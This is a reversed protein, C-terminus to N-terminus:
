GKVMDALARDIADIMECELYNKGRQKNRDFLYLFLEIAKIIESDFHKKTGLLYSSLDKLFHEMIVFAHKRDRLPMCFRELRSFDLHKTADEFLLEGKGNHVYFRTKSPVIEYFSGLTNIPLEIRKQNANYPVAMIENGFRDLLKLTYSANIPLTIIRTGTTPYNTFSQTPEQITTTSKQAPKEPLNALSALLESKIADKNDDERGVRYTLNQATTPASPTAINITPANTNGLDSTTNQGITEYLPDLWYTVINAAENMKQGGDYVDRVHWTHEDYLIFMEKYPVNEVDGMKLADEYASKFFEAKSVSDTETTNQYLTKLFYKFIDMKGELLHPRGSFSAFEVLLAKRVNDNHIEEGKEIDTFYKNKGNLVYGNPRDVILSKNNEYFMNRGPLSRESILRYNTTSTNTTDTNTNWISTTPLGNNPKSEDINLGDDVYQFIGNIKYVGM